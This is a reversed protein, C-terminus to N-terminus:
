ISCLCGLPDMNWNLFSISSNRGYRNSLWLWSIMKINNLLAIADPTVGKFIVENRHKWISWMTVLWILRSIRGGGKKLRVLDGFLLFHNWRDVGTQINKGLWRAVANWIAKSFQCGLFLHESDEVNLTCFICHLDSSNILIGRHNLDARTPLKDLLFRWGFVIAKSPADIKWLKKISILANGDLMAAPQEENLMSYCSKVTFVGMPDSKWRWRDPSNPNLSFGALLDKLEELMQVERPCLLQLWQWSWHLTAGDYSLRESIMVEKNVEKAFLEPFLVSFSHAGFWTFRWFGINTGDGVICGINPMFRREEQERELGIIDRWWLSSNNNNSSVNGSLLVSPLHGYRFRLLDAWIAEGETLFRWKWKCLLAKNFLALNKVGLGGQAKPLCIQDWKIWCLKKDEIGGGWLFNRQIRVLQKLVCCPAKFFSFFYLPISALVSNILTIRGGYSLHRSSWLNLRKSMTDIVPQWTTRRRPNAGVPIGLFKFPVVDSLCSLFSAGAELFRNEINLGYLKSKVFNIKLGSVLEFGRLLSKITWINNWSGEGLIITDDAFQLIQFQTDQNIHYGKFKGIEVAKTMMGTLGEAVILFLFPSLPDGQRLGRGVKFDLTPSGNVLVSMSSEFICARIWKVWVEAFGMKLMMRELFHWSVTDYAREFDVKFLLCEDRRRKALDLIENLVVVGDLIQRQPLFASQCKSILKGLVRKLRNALLKSLIKYLSGILCIPRYDFLDQPHDKKPVLTLFSATMAKPLFANDYFERLFAMVDQKLISWCAKFFNLNFGDPGPSKNGDCSWITDKVEEEDFPSLLLENDESSLSNFTIGHLFPRNEWVESFHKSFHDKVENKIADVGELWVDGKKLKAIKNRRRRGKINAHFFRTNSDGDQIWKTRSKQHLLSEKYHIQEWFLKVKEKSNLNSSDSVGNAIQEEIENMEKVTKDIDLDLVGFVERNWTRLAEKLRKLKEKIVFAKKGHIELSEWTNKVFSIFDPHQLWCNNFKFPKPGWNQESCLLWIPCHDSIDRDGVWQNSIGGKSIFGDSLLFRDLRSMASGDSNFWTFKKGLVPIDVVEMDDCFQSFETRETSGGANSSGRREWSKLISNFDGGLCWEGSANNLKFDLLDSWLKRKGAISCPSYINVVYILSDKWVGCVGLFGDGSFSFHFSFLDENWISILGGSLGNSEKIIWRVDKHGWLSHIASDTLSVRKTEQLLCMDFAGTKIL